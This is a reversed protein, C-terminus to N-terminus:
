PEYITVMIGNFLVWYEAHYHNSSLFLRQFGPYYRANQDANENVSINFIPVPLSSLIEM